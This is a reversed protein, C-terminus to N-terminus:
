ALCGEIEHSLKGMQLDPPCQEYGCDIRAYFAMPEQSCPLLAEVNVSPMIMTM